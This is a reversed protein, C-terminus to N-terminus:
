GPDPDIGPGHCPRIQEGDVRLWEDCEHMELRRLAERVGAPTGDCGLTYTLPYPKGTYACTTSVKVHIMGGEISLDWGPKYTYTM